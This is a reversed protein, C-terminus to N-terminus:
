MESQKFFLEVRQQATGLSRTEICEVYEALQQDDLVVYLEKRCPYRYVYVSRQIACFGLRRLTRQFSIRGLRRSEPIDFVIIRWVGDWRKQKPIDVREWSDKTLFKRGQTTLSLRAGSAGNTLSLLGREQLRSVSKRITNPKPRKRKSGFLIPASRLIGPAVLGALLVTGMGMAKLIAM